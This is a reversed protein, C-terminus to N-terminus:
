IEEVGLEKLSRSYDEAMMMDNKKRQQELEYNEKAIEMTTKEQIAKEVIKLNM